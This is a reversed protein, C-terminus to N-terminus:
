VYDSMYIVFTQVLGATASMYVFMRVYEILM